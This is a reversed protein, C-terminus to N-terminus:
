FDSEYVLGEKEHHLKFVLLPYRRLQATPDFLLRVKQDVLDLAGNCEGFDGEGHIQVSLPHWLSYTLTIEDIKGPFFPRYLPSFSVSSITLRNLFIWPAIRINEVTAIELNDVMLTGNAIDLYFFRNTLSENSIFVNKESLISELTFYLKEKPIVVIILIFIYFAYLLPKM